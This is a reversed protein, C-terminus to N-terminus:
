GVDHIYALTRHPRIRFLDDVTIPRRCVGCGGGYVDWRGRRTGAPQDGSGPCWGDEPEAEPTELPIAM